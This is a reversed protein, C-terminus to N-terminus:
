TLSVGPACFKTSSAKMQVLSDKEQRDNCFYIIQRLLVKGAMALALFSANHYPMNVVKGQHSKPYSNGSISPRNRVCVHM